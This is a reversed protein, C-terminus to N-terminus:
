GEILGQFEQVSIGLAGPYNRLQNRQAEPMEGDASAVEFAAKVVMAVGQGGLSASIERLYDVSSVGASSAMSLEMELEQDGLYKGSLASYVRKIAEKMGPTPAGGAIALLVCLRKVEEYFENLTDQPNYNLVEMEYTGGCSACEIYEGASHMPIVPIFYLTFFVRVRKHTFSAHPGCRPCYFNGDGVKGTIGTTGYIILGLM